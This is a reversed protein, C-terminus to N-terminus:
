AEVPLSDDRAWASFGGEMNVVESYGANELWGAAQCARSAYLGTSFFFSSFFVSFAAHLFSPSITLSERGSPWETESDNSCVFTARMVFVRLYRVVRVVVYVAMLDAVSGWRWSSLDQTTHTGTTTCVRELALEDVECRWRWPPCWDCRCWWGLRPLFPSLVFSSSRRSLHRLGSNARQTSGGFM